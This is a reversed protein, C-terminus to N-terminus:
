SAERHKTAVIGLAATAARHVDDDHFVKGGLLQAIIRMFDCRLAPPIQHARAMCDAFQSDTLRLPSM